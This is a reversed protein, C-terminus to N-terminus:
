FPCFWIPMFLFSLLHIQVYTNRPLRSPFLQGSLSPSLVTLLIWSNKCSFDQSSITGGEWIRNLVKKKKKPQSPSFSINFSFFFTYIIFNNVTLWHISVHMIHTHSHIYACTPIFAHMMIEFYIIYLQCDGLQLTPLM